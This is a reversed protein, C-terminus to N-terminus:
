RDGIAQWKLLVEEISGTIQVTGDITNGRVRGKYDQRVMREDVEAFLSFQIRDGNLGADFIHLNYDGNKVVGNINQYSQNLEMDFSLNEGLLSLRWHWRGVVGAPVTWLYLITDIQYSKGINLHVMKDPRWEGLHFDHSIIRSGPKLEALLKPRMQINIDNLLYMTVVSADRIDTKFIDKVFFDTKKEVGEEAAYKKSLEVLDKNLDVGFGRAGYEKAATIVIRGDGSGLDILYDDPGVSGLDLITRVVKMTTPVYPVDLSDSAEGFEEGSSDPFNVKPKQAYVPCTVSTVILLILLFRFFLIGTKRKISKPPQLRM